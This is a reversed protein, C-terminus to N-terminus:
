IDMGTGNIPGGQSDSLNTTTITRRMVVGNSVTNAEKAIAATAAAREALFETTDGAAALKTTNVSFGLSNLDHNPKEWQAISFSILADFDVFMHERGQWGTQLPEAGGAPHRIVIMNIRDYSSMLRGNSLIVKQIDDTTIANNGTQTAEYSFGATPVLAGDAGLSQLNSDALLAKVGILDLGYYIDVNAATAGGSIANAAVTFASNLSQETLMENRTIAKDNVGGTLDLVYQHDVVVAFQTQSPIAGTAMFGEQILRAAILRSRDVHYTTGATEIATTLPSEPNTRPDSNDDAEDAVMWYLFPEAGSPYGNGDATPNSNEDLVTGEVDVVILVTDSTGKTNHVTDRFHNDSPPDGNSLHSYSEAAGTAVTTAEYITMRYTSSLDPLIQASIARKTGAGPASGDTDLDLKFCVFHRTANGSGAITDDTITPLRSAPNVDDTGTFTIDIRKTLDIQNSQIKSALASTYTGLDIIKAVQDATLDIQSPALKVNNIESTAM